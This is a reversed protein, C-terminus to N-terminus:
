HVCIGRSYCALQDEGDPVDGPRLIYLAAGRPDTQIFATLTPHNAMIAELRKKAGNERDAIKTYSISDKGQGHRYHHHKMYAEGNDDHEFAKGNKRGRVIAWSGYNNGDGCEKEHWRQLTNSIKRLTDATSRDIGLTELTTYLWERREFERKTM